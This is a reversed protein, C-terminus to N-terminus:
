VPVPRGTAPDVIYYAPEQGSCGGVAVATVIALVGGVLFRSRVM